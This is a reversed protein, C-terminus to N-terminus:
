LCPRMQDVIFRWVNTADAFTFEPESHLYYQWLGWDLISSGGATSFMINQVGDHGFHCLGFYHGLEHALIYRSFYPPFIDRYIVGSGQTGSPVIQRNVTICCSDTRGPTVCRAAAPGEVIDRGCTNGFIEKGESDRVYHFAALAEAPCEEATAPKIGSSQFFAGQVESPFINIRYEGPATVELTTMRGLTPIGFEDNWQLAVGMKKFKKKAVKLCDNLAAPSISFIQLRIDEGALFKSIQWRNVPLLSPSGGLGIVRVLTRPRNFSFSNFSLLNALAFLDLTSDAHMARIRAAVGKTGTDFMMVHNNANFKLGWIGSAINLRNLIDPLEPAGALRTALLRAVFVRLSERSFNDVIGSVFYGGTTVRLLDVGFDVIDIGLNLIEECLRPIDLKLLSGIIAGQDRLIHLYDVSLDRAAEIVGVIIGGVVNPVFGLIPGGNAAIWGTVANCGDEVAGSVGDVVNEATDTVTEVVGEVADGVTSVVSSVANGLDDWWAM